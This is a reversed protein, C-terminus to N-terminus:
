VISLCPRASSYKSMLHVCVLIRGITPLQFTLMVKTYALVHLVRSSESSDLPMRTINAAAPHETLWM